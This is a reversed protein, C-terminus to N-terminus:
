KEVRGPQVYLANAWLLQGNENARPNFLNYLEFGQSRLYADIDALLAGNKYLPNFFAETFVMATHRLTQEGGRLAELESAQIDLKILDIPPINERERWKDLTVVPVTVDRQVEWKAQDQDIASVGAELLSSRGPGATVHLTMESESSSLALAQPHVRSDKKALEALTDGYAPNPEFLHAQAEPFQELLRLAVHGNSAGADIIHRVPKDGMLRKM